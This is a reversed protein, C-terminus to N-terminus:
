QYECVPTAMIHRRLPVQHQNFCASAHRQLFICLSSGHADVLTAGRHLLVQVANQLQRMKIQYMHMQQRTDLKDAHVSLPESILTALMCVWLCTRSHAEIYTYRDLM